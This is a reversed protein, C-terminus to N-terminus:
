RKQQWVFEMFLDWVDEGVTPPGGDQKIVGLLKEIAKEYEVFAAIAILPITIVITAIGLCFFLINKTKNM